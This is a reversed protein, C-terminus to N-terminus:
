LDIAQESILWEIVRMPAVSDPKGMHRANVREICGIQGKSTCGRDGHDLMRDHSNIRTHSARHNTDMGSLPGSRIWGRSKWDPAAVLVPFPRPAVERSYGVVGKSGLTVHILVAGPALVKGLDGHSGPFVSAQIVVGGHVLGDTDCVM